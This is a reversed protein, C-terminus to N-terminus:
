TQCYQVITYKQCVNGQWKLVLRYLCLKFPLSQNMTIERKTNLPYLSCWSPSPVTLIGIGPVSSKVLWLCRLVCFQLALFLRSKNMQNLSIRGSINHFFGCRYNIRLSICKMVSQIWLSVCFFSSWLNKPGHLKVSVAAGVSSDLWM